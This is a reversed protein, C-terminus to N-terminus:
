LCLVRQRERERSLLGVVFAIGDADVSTTWASTGRAERAGRSASAVMREVSGGCLALDDGHTSMCILLHHQMRRHKQQNAQERQRGNCRRGETTRAMRLFGYSDGNRLSEETQGEELGRERQKGWLGGGAMMPVMAFAGFQSRVAEAKAANPTVLCVSQVRAPEPWWWRECM